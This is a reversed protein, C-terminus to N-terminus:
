RWEGDYEQETGAKAVEEEEDEDENNMLELTEEEAREELQQKRGKRATNIATFGLLLILLITVLYAPFIINLFVGPITGLLTAPELLVALNLDILRRPLTPHRRRIM